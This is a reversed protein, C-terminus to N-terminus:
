EYLAEINRNLDVGKLAEEASRGSQAYADAKDHPPFVPLYVCM